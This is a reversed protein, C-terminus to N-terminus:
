VFVSYSLILQSSKILKINYYVVFVFMAKKMFQVATNLEHFKVDCLLLLAGYVNRRGHFSDKLPVCIVTFGDATDQICFANM